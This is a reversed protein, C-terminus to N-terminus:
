KQGNLITRLYQDPTVSSFKKFDKIFHAQDHYALLHEAINQNNHKLAELMYQSRVISAFKKPSAGVVARFRKELPSQSTHLKAALAAIRVTGRSGYIHQLAGTVLRDEEREKLQSLLFGQIIKLRAQDDTATYLKDLNRLPM